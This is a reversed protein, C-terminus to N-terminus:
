RVEKLQEGRRGKWERLLENEIIGTARAKDFTKFVGNPLLIMGGLGLPAACLKPNVEVLYYDRFPLPGNLKAQAQYIEALTEAVAKASPASFQSYYYTFRHDGAQVLYRQPDHLALLFLKFTRAATWTYLRLGRDMEESEKTGPLIMEYGQGCKGTVSLPYRLTPTVPLAMEGRPGPSFRYGLVLETETQPVLPAPLEIGAYETTKTFKCPHVRDQKASLLQGDPFHLWIKSIKKHTTTLRLTLEARFESSSKMEVALAGESVQYEFNKFANKPAIERVGRTLRSFFGKAQDLKSDPM